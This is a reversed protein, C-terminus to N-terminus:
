SLGAATLMDVIPVFQPHLTPEGGTLKAGALGLPKAEEVARQLLELPVHRGPASEGGAAFSPRIWCHRCRLNCDATLYLYFFRLAPVGPPLQLDVESASPAINPECLAM